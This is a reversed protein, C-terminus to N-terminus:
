SFKESEYDIFFHNNQDSSLFRVSLGGLVDQDIDHQYSHGRCYDVVRAVGHLDGGKAVEVVELHFSGM